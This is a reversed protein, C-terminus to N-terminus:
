LKNLAECIRPSAVSGVLRDGVIEGNNFFLITPVGRVGCRNAFDVETDVDIVVFTVNPYGPEVAKLTEKLAVCPKCWSASFVTLMKGKFKEVGIASEEKM